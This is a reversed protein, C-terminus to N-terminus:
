LFMHFGRTLDTEQPSTSSSQPSNASRENPSLQYDLLDMYVFKIHWGPRLSDTLNKTQKAALFPSQFGVLM